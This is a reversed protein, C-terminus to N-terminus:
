AACAARGRRSRLSGGVLGFGAILMARSAPEPVSLLNSGFYGDAGFESSSNPEAFGDIAGVTVRSDLFTVGSALTYTAQGVFQDAATGYHAGVVYTGPGLTLPAISEFRWGRGTGATLPDASSVM